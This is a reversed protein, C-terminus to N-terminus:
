FLVSLSATVGEVVDDTTRDSFRYGAKFNLWLRPIWTIGVDWLNADERRGDPDFHEFRGVLYVNRLLRLEGLDLVGQLYVSWLDREPISGEAFVAESSLELPGLQLLGDLGVLYNWENKQESALLSTGISWSGLADGYELRAGASREAPRPDEDADLPDVLQGHLWYRLPNGGPHVVGFLAAGTEHEDFAREIQVPEVATWVFPEAPVLNWRGVPTQFKGVRLNLADGHSWDAYLREVDLSLDHDFDDREPEFSALGGIEVEAFFRLAPIPEFLILFNVSDLEITVDGPAEDDIEVTSFGGITLGTDGFRLGRGARYAFAGAPSDLSFVPPEGGAVPDVSLTQQARAPLSLLSVV